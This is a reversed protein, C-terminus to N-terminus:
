KIKEILLTTGSRFTVGTDSGNNFFYIGFTTNSLILSLTGFLESIYGANQNTNLVLGMKDVYEFNHENGICIEFNRYIGSAEASTTLTIKYIGDQLTFMGNSYSIGIDDFIKSFTKLKTNIKAVENSNLKFLAKKSLTALFYITAFRSPISLNPIAWKGIPTVWCFICSLDPAFVLLM